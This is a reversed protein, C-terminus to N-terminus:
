RVVITYGSETRENLGDPSLYSVAIWDAGLELARLVDTYRHYSFVCSKLKQRHLYSMLEEDLAEKPLSM